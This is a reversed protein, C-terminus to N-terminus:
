LGNDIKFKDWAENLTSFVAGSIMRQETTAGTSIKDPHVKAIGKMYIIKVKNAMVLEHMGVKKWGAEPWLVNELSGLLARLNDQKGGRWATIKADVSDALAFKEDDVKEAAANAERLRSVAEASTTTSSSPRGALEDLASQKRAAIRAAKLPPDKLTKSQTTGGVASECRTRGQVSKSGGIGAEIAERWVTAAEKWKEMQELAEAKGMVAESYRDQMKRQDKASEVEIIGGQGRGPGIIRIAQEADTFAAKPSGMKLNVYVRKCHLIITFPHGSPLLSMAKNYASLSAPYDGRDSATVGQRYHAESTALISSSIPPVLRQAVTQKPLTRSIEPQSSKLQEKPRTQPPTPELWTTEQAQGADNPELVDLTEVKPIDAKVPHKKRRAPSIYATSSEEELTQRTLRSRPRIDDRHSRAAVDSPGRRGNLESLAPSASRSSSATGTHSKVQTRREQRPPLSELMLAEDTVGQDMQESSPSSHKHTRTEQDPARSDSSSTVSTDTMWKPQHSDGQFENVAKQVKQRGTKWLSNASKFLTQGVETAVQAVDKESKDQTDCDERWRAKHLNAGHRSKASSPEHRSQKDSSTRQSQSQANADEKAKRHAESLLWGVATQVDIGSQTTSLALRAKEVSFGMDVLEAVAKRESDTSYTASTTPSHAQSTPSPTHQVRSVEDVPRGLLGLVDDDTQPSSKTPPPHSSKMQGLGFPDDDEADLASSSVPMSQMVDPVSVQTKAGNSQVPAPTFDKSPYQLGNTTNAPRGDSSKADRTTKAKSGGELADWFKSEQAGFIADVKNKREAEEKARQQQLQIQREQLSLEEAPKSPKLSVLNSFSDNAPTSSSSRGPLNSALINRAGGNGALTLPTSRGSDSPSPTPRLAPYYSAPIGVSPKKEIASATPTSTWEIGQLDDM